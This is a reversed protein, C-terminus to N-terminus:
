VISQLLVMMAEVNENLTRLEELIQDGVEENIHKEEDLYDLVVSQFTDM